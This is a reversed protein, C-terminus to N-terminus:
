SVASKVSSPVGSGTIAPPSILTFGDEQLV